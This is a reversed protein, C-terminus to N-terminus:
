QLANLETKIENMSQITKATFDPSFEEALKEQNATIWWDTAEIIKERLTSILFKSAAEYTPFENSLNDLIYGHHEVRYTPPNGYSWVKTIYWHCDRDKHHDVLTRYWLGTLKTINNDPASM